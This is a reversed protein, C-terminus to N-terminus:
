VVSKRDVGLLVADFTSKISEVETAIDILEDSSRAAWLTTTLERVVARVHALMGAVGNGAPVDPPIDSPNTM